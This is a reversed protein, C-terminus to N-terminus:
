APLRVHSDPFPDLPSKALAHCMGFRLRRGLGNFYLALAIPLERIHSLWRQNQLRSPRQDLLKHIDTDLGTYRDVCIASAKTDSNKNIPPSFIILVRDRMRGRNRCRALTVVKTLIAGGASEKGAIRTTPVVLWSNVVVSVFLPSAINVTLPITAVPSKAWLLLQLEMAGLALQAISTVKVGVPDPNLAPVTLTLLVSECLGSVTLREPIPVNM